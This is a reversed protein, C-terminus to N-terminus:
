QNIKGKLFKIVLNFNELTEASLEVSENRIYLEQISRNFLKKNYTSDTPYNTQQIKLQDEKTFIKETEFNKWASDIDEYTILLESVSLGFNEEYRNKQKAGEKDSDLLVVFKSGWGLYLSILSELNSASTGPIFRLNKRTKLIIEQIYNYTYYDNKGETIISFPVLELNTPRYDLLELIPQFYNSQNPHKVAFERYRNIKINTNKSNYKVENEYDIAENKIVFTNELWKPNILYHSHTTYIVNPLKEFSKLLETQASPHLNSAPEDFLFFANGNQRRYARFQTLLIYVFFWRFGLSRQVIRYNDVDDKINFELYSGISDKNAILIIETQSIEKKFIQNWKDFIVETLKRQMKSILSTLSRKDKEVSSEIKKILHDHINLDNDLSDLVDQIITQYFKHKPDDINDNLYIKEPFEFLFNPFYLISPMRKKILSSVILCQENSLVKVIKSKGVSGKFFVNWLYENKEPLHESNKFSYNQTYVIETNYDKLTIDHKKFEKEIESIDSKDLEVCAQIKIKGNFNDLKNIPILNHIDSVDYSDLELADLSEPKYAFYNIAELITTKGSENLGVLTYVNNSNNKSLNLTQSEIGKFNEFKFYTFKM